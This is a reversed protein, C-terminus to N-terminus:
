EVWQARAKMWAEMEEFMNKLSFYYRPFSDHGDIHLSYHFSTVNVSVRGRDCYDPRKEVWVFCQRGAIVLLHHTLDVMWRSKAGELLPAQTLPEAGPFTRVCEVWQDYFDDLAPTYTKAGQESGITENSM